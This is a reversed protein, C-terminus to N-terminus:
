GLVMWHQIVEFDGEVVPELTQAVKRIKMFCSLSVLVDDMENWKIVRIYRTLRTAV